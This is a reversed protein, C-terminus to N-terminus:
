PGRGPRCAAAWRRHHGGRRAAAAGGAGVGAAGRHDVHEDGASRRWTRRRRRGRPGARRDAVDRHGVGPAVRVGARGNVSASSWTRSSAVSMAVGVALAPCRPRQVPRRQTSRRGPPRRWDRRDGVRHRHLAASESSRSVLRPWTPWMRSCSRPRSGPGRHERDDGHRPEVQVLLGVLRAGGRARRHVHRLGVRVGALDGVRPDRDAAGARVGAVVRDGGAVLAGRRAREDPGVGREDPGAADGHVADDVMVRVRVTLFGSGPLLSMVAVRSDSAGPLLQGVAVASGRQVKVTGTRTGARLM